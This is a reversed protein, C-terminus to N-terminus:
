LVGHKPGFQKQTEKKGLFTKVKNDLNSAYLQKCYEM